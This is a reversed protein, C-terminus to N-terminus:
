RTYTIYHDNNPIPTVTVAPKPTDICYTVGPNRRRLMRLRNNAAEITACNSEIAVTVGVSEVIKFM